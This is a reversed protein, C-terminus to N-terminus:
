IARKLQKYYRTATSLDFNGHKYMYEIKRRVVALAKEAEFREKYSATKMLEKIIPRWGLNRNSVYEFCDTTSQISTYTM